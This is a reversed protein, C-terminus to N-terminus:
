NYKQEISQKNKSHKIANTVGQAITGLALAGFIILGGKQSKNLNKFEDIFDGVKEKLIKNYVSETSDWVKGMVESLKILGKTVIDKKKQPLIPKIQENILKITANDSIIQTGSLNVKKPTTRSLIDAFKDQEATALAKGILMTGGAFTGLTGAQKLAFSANNKVSEQLKATKRQGTTLAAVSTDM